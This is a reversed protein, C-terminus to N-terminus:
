QIFLEVGVPRLPGYSALFSLPPEVSLLPDIFLDNFLTLATPNWILKRKMGRTGSSRFRSRM